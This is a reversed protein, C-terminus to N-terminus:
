TGGKSWLGRSTEQVKLQQARIMEETQGRGHGRGDIEMRDGGESTYKEEGEDDEVPKKLLDSGKMGEKGGNHTPDRSLAGNMMGALGGERLKNLARITDIATHLTKRANFNKKVVPLLDRAPEETPTTGASTPDTSTVDGNSGIAM